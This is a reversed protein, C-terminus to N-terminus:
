ENKYTAHNKSVKIKELTDGDSCLLVNELLDDSDDEQVLAM